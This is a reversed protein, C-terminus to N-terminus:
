AARVAPGGDDFTRVVNYFADREVPIKGAGRILKLIEDFITPPVKLGYVAPQPNAQLSRPM